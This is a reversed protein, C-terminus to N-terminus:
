KEDIQYNNYLEIIYTTYFINIRVIFDTKPRIYLLDTISALWKCKTNKHTVFHSPWSMCKSKTTLFSKWYGNKKQELSFKAIIPFIKEIKM